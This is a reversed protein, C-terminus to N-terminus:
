EMGSPSMGHWEFMSRGSSGMGYWKFWEYWKSENWVVQSWNMGSSGNM